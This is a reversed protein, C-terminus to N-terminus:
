ALYQYKDRGEVRSIYEKEILAEIQKKITAVSPTFKGYRQAQNSM